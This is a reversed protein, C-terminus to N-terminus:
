SPNIHKKLDNLADALIGLNAEHGLSSTGINGIGAERLVGKNKGSIRGESEQNATQVASEFLSHLGELHILAEGANKGHLDIDLHIADGKVSDPVSLSDVNQWSPHAVDLQGDISGPTKDSESTNSAFSSASSRGKKPSALGTLRASVNIVSAGINALHKGINDFFGSRMQPKPQVLGKLSDKNMSEFIQDFTVDPNSRMSSVSNTESGVPALSIISNKVQDSNSVGSGVPKRPINFTQRSADPMPTPAKMPDHLLHNYGRPHRIPAHRVKFEAPDPMSFSPRLEPLHDLGGPSSMSLSQSSLHRPLPPHDEHNWTKLFRATKTNIHSLTQGDAVAPRTPSPHNMGLSIPSNQIHM